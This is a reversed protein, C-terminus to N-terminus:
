AFLLGCFIYGVFGCSLGLLRGCWLMRVLLVCGFFGCGCLRHWLGACFLVGLVPVYVLWLFVLM